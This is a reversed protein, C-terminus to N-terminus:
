NGIAFYLVTMNNVVGTGGARNVTMSTVSNTSVGMVNAAIGTSTVPTASCFFCANPFPKAFTIVLSTSLLSFSASGWKLILGGFLLCSGPSAINYQDSTRSSDGSYFFLQPFGAVTNTFLVPPSTPVAPVNNANFTVQKHQGNGTQGFGVHDVAVYGATSQNNILMQPQDLAPANNAAPIATNFTYITM